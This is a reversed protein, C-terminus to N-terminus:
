AEGAPELGFELVLSVRKTAGPALVEADGSALIADRGAVFCNGPEIGLVYDRTGLMKWEVLHGLATPFRVHLALRADGVRNAIRVTTTGADAADLSHYFVREVAGEVPATMERWTAVDAAGGPDRLETRRPAPSVDLETTESLLPHGLNLHYLLFLPAAAGGINVIEDDVDIRNSGLSFRYRRRLEFATGMAVTDRGVGAVEVVHHEDVWRRTIAVERAALHSLRGHLGIEIGDVTAAAGVNSLGCSTLLGGGFSQLWGSGAPNYYWPAVPGAASLWNIPVGCLSANGLGMGRDTLIEFALGAGTRAEVFQMGRAPGEAYALLTAGGVQDLSGVRAELEARALEPYLSFTM